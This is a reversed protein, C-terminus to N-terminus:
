FPAPNEFRMMRGTVPHRFGLRVAHLLLRDAATVCAVDGYLDDGLIAHGISMMHVRLQHSRGTVPELSVRTNGQEIALRRYRTLASRGQESVMQRPRNPWDVMLPLDVEGSDEAMEGQVCAIYEKDIERDHFQRSLARHAAANLAYVLLGSTSYDLRHAVLVTPFLLRLRSQACDQKDPGRGPVSLLQHPKEIVAVDEDSYVIKIPKDSESM